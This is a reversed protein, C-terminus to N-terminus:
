LDKIKLPFILCQVLSRLFCKYWKVIPQFTGFVVTVIIQMDYLMACMSLTYYYGKSKTSKLYNILIASVAGFFFTAAGLCGAALFSFFVLSVGAAAGLAATGAFGLGTYL